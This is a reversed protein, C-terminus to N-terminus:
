KTNWASGTLYKHFHKWLKHTVQVDQVMYDEMDQSWDKWDTTKAFGGKYEGLRYGYAELSHRGLLNLPMHKWRCKMEGDKGKVRDISLLDPHYLRSLLLTDLVRPPEFWAYFKQIIPIDFNVVNHGIITDAEELMTIARAIPERTGQDNFIYTEGNGLDKIAVCHIRSVNNYLGDTELDFLLNMVRWSPPSPSSNMSTSSPTVVEMAM